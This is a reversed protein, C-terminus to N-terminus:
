LKIEYIMKTFDDDYVLQIDKVKENLLEESMYKIFLDEDDIYCMAVLWGGDYIKVYRNAETRELLVDELREM